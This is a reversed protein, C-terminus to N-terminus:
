DNTEGESTIDNSHENWYEYPKIDEPIMGDLLDKILWEHDEVRNLCLWKVVETLQWDAAARLDTRRCEGMYPRNTIELCLEDTLRHQKTM